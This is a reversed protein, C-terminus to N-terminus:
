PPPWRSRKRQHTRQGSTANHLQAQRSAYLSHATEAVKEAIGTIAWAITPLQIIPQQNPQPDPLAMPAGERELSVRHGYWLGLLARGAIAPPV